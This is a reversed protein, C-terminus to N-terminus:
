PRRRGRPGPDTPPIETDWKVGNSRGKRVHDRTDKEVAKHAKLAKLFHKEFDKAKPNLHALVTGKQGYADPQIVLVGEKLEGKLIKLDAEKLTKAYVARGKASGWVIPLLIENTAKLDNEKKNFTVVLPLKDCSAVNLALRVTKMVPLENKTKGSVKYRGIIRDMSQAMDGADSYIRKPSRGARSLKTKGDPALIAFVTNELEGSRGLFISKLIKAEDKSEYTALRICVFQRSAKIVSKQSLFSRDM